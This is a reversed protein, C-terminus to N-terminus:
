ATPFPVLINSSTFEHNSKWFMITAYVSNFILYIELDLPAVNLARRFLDNGLCVLSTLLSERSHYNFDMHVMIYKAPQERGGVCMLTFLDFINM